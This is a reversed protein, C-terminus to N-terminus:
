VSIIKAYAYAGHRSLSRVGGKAACYAAAGNDASGIIASLSSCNVISGGGIKQMYPIVTKMGLWVSTLNVNINKMWGEYTEEVLGCHTSVGANNILIDIKGFAKEAEEVTKVWEEPSTVDLKMAKVNEGLESTGKILLEEDIDTAFVKAGENLFLKVAELGMGNAAGTIFAVKGELRNM